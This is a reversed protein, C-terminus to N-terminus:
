VAELADAIQPLSTWLPQKGFLLVNLNLTGSLAQTDGNKFHAALKIRM